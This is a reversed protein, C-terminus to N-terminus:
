EARCLVLERVYEAIALSATLGPSEMGFMNVLGAIGHDNSSQILFDAPPEGCQSLKPRVGAYDPLLSTADVGPWYSSIAIAFQERKSSKVQYDLDAAKQDRSLWTVDPGFKAAGSMDMTLHVGLGGEEPVPYVLHKFPVRAGYSFYEGKAFTVNPAKVTSDSLIEAAYLGASNVCTKALLLADQGVIEWQTGADTARIFSLESRAVFHGGEAEFDALLQSMYAHSDIVGTSPSLLASLGSLEPELARLAAEDLWQLDDVGNAVANDMIHQLQAQQGESGAVILKGCRQYPIQKSECYHYLQDRGKVCLKAKLSGPPYYIGAHIVESNRSSTEMGFSERQDMLWVQTETGRCHRALERAVALGIVGAGIVLVDVNFTEM